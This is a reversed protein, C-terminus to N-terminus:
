RVSLGLLKAIERRTADDPEVAVTDRRERPTRSAPARRTVRAGKPMAAEIQAVTVGARWDEAGEAYAPAEVTITAEVADGDTTEQGLVDAEDIAKARGVAFDHVGLLRGWEDLIGRSVDQKSALKELVQMDITPAGGCRALYSRHVCANKQGRRHIRGRMQVWRELSFDISYYLSIRSATLTIGLGATQNQALFVRVPTLEDLPAARFPTTQFRRVAEGRPNVLQGTAPDRRSATGVSGDVKMYTWPDGRKTDAEALKTLMAEIAAIEPLFRAFIVVKEGQALLDAVDEHLADLKAKSVQVVEGEDDGVFGGALQQLRMLKTLINTVTVQRLMNAEQRSAKFAAIEAILDPDSQALGARLRDLRQKATRLHALAAKYETVLEAIETASDDRLRAYARAPADELEVYRYEDTEEPLWPLAEAKTVRFARSHLRAALEDLHQYEVLRPFGESNDYVAYHNRFRWWNDGFVSPDLFLYQSFIQLPAQDVASGTGILRYRAHDRLQHLAKARKTAHNAIRQSEDCVIMSHEAGVDDLWAAVSERFALNLGLAEYNTVAFQLYDPSPEWAGLTDIRRRTDGDLARVQYPFGPGVVEPFEKEAWVPVVSAPAVVLVRRLEERFYRRGAVALATATKGTGVDMLLAFQDFLMGGNYGFVQHPDLTIALPVPEIPQAHQWGSERMAAFQAERRKLGNLLEVARPSFVLGPLARRLQYAVDTRIPCRWRYPRVSRDCEHGRIAKAARVIADSFAESWLVLRDGQVSLRPTTDTM